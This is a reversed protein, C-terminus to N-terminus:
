PITKRTDLLRQRHNTHMVIKHFKRLNITMYQAAVRMEADHRLYSGKILTKMSLQMQVDHNNQDNKHYLTAYKKKNM